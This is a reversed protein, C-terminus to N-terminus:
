SEELKRRRNRMEAYARDHKAKHEDCLPVTVHGAQTRVRVTHPAKVGCEPQLISVYFKCTETAVPPSETRNQM